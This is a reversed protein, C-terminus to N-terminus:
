ALNSGVSASNWEENTLGYSEITEELFAITKWVGKTIMCMTSGNQRLHDGIQKSTAQMQSKWLVMQREHHISQGAKLLNLDEVELHEQILNQAKAFVEEKRRVSNDDGQFKLPYIYQSMQEEVEKRLPIRVKLIGNCKELAHKLWDHQYM